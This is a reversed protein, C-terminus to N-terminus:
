FKRTPSALSILANQWQLGVRVFACLLAKLTPREERRRSMVPGANRSHSMRSGVPVSFAREKSEPSGFLMMLVAGPSHFGSSFKIQLGLEFDLLHQSTSAPEFILIRAGLSASSAYPAPM